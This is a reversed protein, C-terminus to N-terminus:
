RTPRRTPSHASQSALVLNAAAHSLNVFGDRHNTVEKTAIYAAKVLKRKRKNFGTHLATTCDWSPLYDYKEAHIVLSNLTRHHRLDNKHERMRRELGRATKSNYMSACGGCPISYVVSQKNQGGVVKERVLCQINQGSAYAVCVGSCIRLAWSNAAFLKQLTFESINDLGETLKPVRQTEEVFMHLSHMWTSRRSPAPIPFFLSPACLVVKLVVSRRVGKHYVCLFIIM